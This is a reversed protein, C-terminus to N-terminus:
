KREIRKERHKELSRREEFSRSKNMEKGTPCVFTFDLPYFFLVVYKGQKQSKRTQSFSFPRPQSLNDAISRNLAEREKKKTTIRGRNRFPLPGKNRARALHSVIIVFACFPTFFSLCALLSPLLFIPSVEELSRCEFASAIVVLSNFFSGQLRRALGDQVPRGRRGAGQVGPCRFRNQPGDPLSSLCPSSSPSQQSNRHLSFHFFFIEM